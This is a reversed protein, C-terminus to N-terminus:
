DRGQPTKPAARAPGTGAGPPTAPGASKAPTGPKGGGNAIGHLASAEAHTQELAKAQKEASEKEIADLAADVNEIGFIPAVKEVAHRKTIVGSDLAVKVMELVAKQDTPDPRFYPGWQVKLSPSQWPM